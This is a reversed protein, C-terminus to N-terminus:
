GNTMMRRMFFGVQEFGFHELFKATRESKFKNDNGGTLEIAGLLKGWAILEKTLMIAARSGQYASTVFLVEQTCFLGDAHRYENMTAVLLGVVRGKDEAVFFTTYAHDLYGRYTERVKEESFTLYPTSIVCNERALAIIDDIDQELGLRVRM